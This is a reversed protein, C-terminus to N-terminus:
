AARRLMVAALMGVTFAVVHGLGVRVTDTGSYTPSPRRPREWPRPGLDLTPAPPLSTTPLSPDVPRGTQDVSPPELGVRAARWQKWRNSM